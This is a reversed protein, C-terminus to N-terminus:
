DLYINPTWFFLFKIKDKFSAKLLVFETNNLIYINPKIHVIFISSETKLTESRLIHVCSCLDLITQVFVRPGVLLWDDWVAVPFAKSVTRISM